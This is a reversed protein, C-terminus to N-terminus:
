FGKSTTYKGTAKYETVADNLLDYEVCGFFCAKNLVALRQKAAALDGRKLHLEGLYNNAGKHEPDIKLANQYYGLARDTKGARAHSYGLYNFADANRPDDKVTKLLFPIAAEYQRAAIARKAQRWSDDSSSRSSHASGSKSGSGGGVAWASPASLLSLAVVAAWIMSSLWRM